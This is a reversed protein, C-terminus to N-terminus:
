QAYSGRGACQQAVLEACSGRATLADRVCACRRAMFEHSRALHLESWVARTSTTLHLGRARSSCRVPFHLSVRLRLLPPPEAAGRRQVDDRREARHRGDGHADQQADVGGVDPVADHVQLGPLVGREAGGAAGGRVTQVRQNFLSHVLQQGLHARAGRNNNTQKNVRLFRKM